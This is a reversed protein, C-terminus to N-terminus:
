KKSGLLILLVKIVMQIAVKSPGEKTNQMVSDLAAITDTLDHSSKYGIATAGTFYPNPDVAGKYGNEQEANTWTWDNEGKYVPKLGFHLHSGTSFGTNDAEGIKDGVKVKSGAHVCISGVKLHWYITKAYATRDLFEVEEDTRIVVGLGATGDEGAFVVTGDHSAYVPTGDKAIYDIGNHGKLGMDKYGQCVSAMCEGFNQTVFIRELPYYLKLKPM